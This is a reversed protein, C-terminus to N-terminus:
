VGLELLTSEEEYLPEAIDDRYITQGRALVDALLNRDLPLLAGPPMVEDAAEGATAIVRAGQEEALVSRWATSRCSAACSASSRASRTRSSSRRASRAPAATRPTSCTPAGASSTACARRRSRGRVRRG